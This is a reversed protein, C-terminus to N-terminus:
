GRTLVSVFFADTDHVHPLIATGLEGVACGFSEAPPTVRFHPHAALFAAVTGENEARALSCTAYVLRGGPRVHAANQALIALQREHHARLEAATTQCRLHPHRRWTGSGSCPADVLVGDYFRDAAPAAALTTINRLGARAARARLEALAAARIDTADVKGAAGLLRALQLTKGGAGACADLWRTGPAPAALALILQSGLDQVEFAGAEFPASRTVDTEILLARADPFAPERRFPLGEQELWADVTAPVDTQLRLWLPPRTLLRDRAPGTLAPAETALWDPFLQDVSVPQGLRASLLTAEDAPTAPLPPWDGLLEARAAALPPEDGALWLALTPRLTEPAAEIWALHRVAAYALARY